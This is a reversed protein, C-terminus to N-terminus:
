DKSVSTSVGNAPTTRELDSEQTRECLRFLDKDTMHEAIMRCATYPLNLKCHDMMFLDAAFLEFQLRFLSNAIHKKVVKQIYKKLDDNSFDNLAPLRFDEIQRLIYSAERYSMRCIELLSIDKNVMIGKIKEVEPTLIFLACETLDDATSMWLWDLATSRSEERKKHLYDATVKDLYFNFAKYISLYYEINVLNQKSSVLTSNFSTRDVDVFLNKIDLDRYKMFFKLIKLRPYVDCSFGHSSLLRIMEAIYFTIPYDNLESSTYDTSFAMNERLTDLSAGRELLSKTLEYDLLSVASELPTFGRANRTEINAGVFILLDVIEDVPRRKKEKKDDDVNDTCFEACDCVRLRALAHLPTSKDEKDRRNPEAGNELLFKVVDVQRYKCAMYLPSCTYSDVNVDVGQSVFRKVAEVDGSFCAGHLYTYGHDDYHNEESDNLFYDILSKTEPDHNAHYKGYKCENQYDRRGFQLLPPKFNQLDKKYKCLYHIASKGDIFIKHINLEVHEKIFTFVKSLKEDLAIKLFMSPHSKVMDTLKKMQKFDMEFTNSRLKNLIDRVNEENFRITKFNDKGM